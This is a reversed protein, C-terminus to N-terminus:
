KRCVIQGDFKVNVTRYTGEGKAPIITTYYREIKGFKKEPEDPAGFIFKENGKRPVIVLDGAENVTMQSINESWTRSSKIFNVLEIAQRLWQKEKDSRPEGKYGSSVGLPVYGDIIPVRSTYNSQLPFLFGREDAYFGDDGKQFRVVPERQRLKINLFGDPTTYADTKLVASKSDLIDEIKKLNVSDLRQGIYSGYDSRLYGEIDEETVFKYDDTYEVKIGACTKQRQRDDNLGWVVFCIVGLLIFAGAVMAIKLGKKM